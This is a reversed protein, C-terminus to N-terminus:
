NAYTAVTSTYYRVIMGDEKVLYETPQILYEEPEFDKPLILHFALQITKDPAVGEDLEALEVDDGFYASIDVTFPTPLGRGFYGGIAVVKRGEYSEPLVINTGEATGDWRYETVFATKDGYAFTFNGEQGWESYDTSCGWLIFVSLLCLALIGITKIRKKM